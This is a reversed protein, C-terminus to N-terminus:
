HVVVMGVISRKIVRNFLHVANHIETTIVTKTIM